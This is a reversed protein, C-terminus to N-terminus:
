LSYVNRVTKKPMGVVGCAVIKWEWKRPISIGYMAGRECCIFETAM